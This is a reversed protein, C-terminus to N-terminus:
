YQLEESVKLKQSQVADFCDMMKKANELIAEIRAIIKQCLAYSSGLCKEISAELVKSGWRAHRPDKVMASGVMEEEGSEMLLLVCENLFRGQRIKWDIAITDLHEVRKRATKIGNHIAWYTAVARVLVPRSRSWCREPSSGGYSICSAIPDLPSSSTPRQQILRM